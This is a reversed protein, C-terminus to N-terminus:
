LRITPLASASTTRFCRPARCTRIGTSRTSGSCSRFARGAKRSATRFERVLRQWTAADARENGYPGSNGGALISGVPYKALDAPTISSIDGQILQGVKEELTMRALLASIANETATDTIAAPSAAAPWLAPHAVGPADSAPTPAALVSSVAGTALLMALAARTKRFPM